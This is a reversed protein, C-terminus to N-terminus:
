DMFKPTRLTTYRVLEFGAADGIWECVTDRGSRVAASCLIASIRTSTEEPTGLDARGNDSTLVGVRASSVSRFWLKARPKIM